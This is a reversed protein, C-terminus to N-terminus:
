SLVEARNLVIGANATMCAERVKRLAAFMDPSHPVCCQIALALQKGAERIRNMSEIEEATPAHYTFQNEIDHAHLPKDYQTKSM